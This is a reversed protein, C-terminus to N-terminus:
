EEAGETVSIYRNLASPASDLLEAMKKSDPLVGFDSAYAEIVAQIKCCDMLARKESISAFQAAKDWQIVGRSAANLGEHDVDAAEQRHFDLEVGLSRLAM